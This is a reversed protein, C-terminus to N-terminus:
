QHEEGVRHSAGHPRFESHAGRGVCGGLTAFSVGLEAMVDPGTFVGLPMATVISARLELWAV